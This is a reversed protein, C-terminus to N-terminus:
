KAAWPFPPDSKPRGDAEFLGWHPGVSEAESKWPEDFMEFLFLDLGTVRAMRSVGEVYLAQHDRGPLAAGNAAGASPWGTEGVVLQKGDAGYLERLRQVAGAFAPVAEAAPIRNYFPHINVMLLDCHAAVRRGQTEFREVAALMSLASTVRVHRRAAASLARRVAEIDDILQEVSVPERCAEPEGPLCENGVVIGAVTDFTNALRVAENLQARTHHLDNPDDHHRGCVYVGVWVKLQPHRRHAIPVIRNLGNALGFIRVHEFGAAVILDLDTEIHADPVPATIHPSQGPRHFPGYAVGIRAPERGPAAPAWLLCALLVGAAALTRVGGRPPIPDPTL